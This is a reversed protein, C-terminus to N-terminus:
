YAAEVKAVLPDKADLLTVQNDTIYEGPFSGDAQGAFLMVSENARVSEHCPNGVRVFEVDAVDQLEEARFCADIPKSLRRRARRAPVTRKGDLVKFSDENRERGAGVLVADGSVEVRKSAM